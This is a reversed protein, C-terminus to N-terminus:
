QELLPGSNAKGAGVHLLECNGAVGAGSSRAGEEPRQM